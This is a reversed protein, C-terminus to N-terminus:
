DNSIHEKTVLQAEFIYILQLGLAQGVRHKRTWKESRKIKM